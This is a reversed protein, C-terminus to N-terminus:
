ITIIFMNFWWRPLPNDLEEIGDFSHHMTETTTEKYVESKRTRYVLILCGIIVALTFITIWMSWFSTM